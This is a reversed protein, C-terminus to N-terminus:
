GEGKAIKLLEANAVIFAEDSTENAVRKLVKITDDRQEIAKSLLSELRKIGEIMGGPGTLELTEENPMSFGAAKMLEKTTSLPTKSESM